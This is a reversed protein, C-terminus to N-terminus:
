LCSNEISIRLKEFKGRSQELKRNAQECIVSLYNDEVLWKGDKSLITEIKLTDTIAMIIREKVGTIFARKIGGAGRALDILAQAADLSSCSISLFPAEMKFWVKSFFSIFLFPSFIEATVRRDM